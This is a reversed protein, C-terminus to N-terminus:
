SSLLTYCGTVLVFHGKKSNSKNSYGMACNATQELKDVRDLIYQVISESGWRLKKNSWKLYNM